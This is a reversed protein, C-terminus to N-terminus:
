QPILKMLLKKLVKVRIIQYELCMSKIMLNSKFNKKISIKHIIM